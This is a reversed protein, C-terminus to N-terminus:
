EATLFCKIDTIPVWVKDLWFKMWRDKQDIWMFKIGVDCGRSLIGLLRSNTDPEEYFKGSVFLTDGVMQEAYKNGWPFKYDNYMWGTIASDVIYFGDDISSNIIVNQNNYLCGAGVSDASPELKIVPNGVITAISDVQYSFWQKVDTQWMCIGETTAIWLTSGDRQLAVIGNSCLSSNLTDWHEVICEKVKDYVLLGAGGPGIQWDDHWATGFYLLNGDQEISTITPSVNLKNDPISLISFTKTFINFYGILITATADGFIESFDLWINVGDFYFVVPYAGYIYGYENSPLIITHKVITNTNSIETVTLTDRGKDFKFYGFPTAVKHESIQWAPTAEQKFFESSKYTIGNYDFTGRASAANEGLTMWNGQDRDYVFVGYPTCHGGGSFLRVFLHSDHIAFHARSIYGRPSAITWFSHAVSLPICSFVLSLLIKDKM